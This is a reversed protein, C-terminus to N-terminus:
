THKGVPQENEAGVQGAGWLPKTNRLSQLSRCLLVLLFETLMQTGPESQGKM